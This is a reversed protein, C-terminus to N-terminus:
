LEERQLIRFHTAMQIHKCAMAGNHLPRARRGRLATARTRIGDPSCTLSSVGVSSDTPTEEDTGHKAGVSERKKALSGSADVFLHQQAMPRPLHESVRGQRM